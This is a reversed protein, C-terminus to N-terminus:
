LINSNSTERVANAVEINNYPMTDWFIKTPQTPQTYKYERLIKTHEDLTEKHEGLIKEVNEIRMYMDEQARLQLIVNRIEERAMESLEGQSASRLKCELEHVVMRNAAINAIGLRFLQSMSKAMKKQNNFLQENAEINKTLVEAQSVVADQLAEIAEKKKGGFLSWGADKSAAKDALGKAKIVASKINQDFEAINNLEENIVIPLNEECVKLSEELFVNNEM